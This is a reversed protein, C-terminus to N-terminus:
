WLFNIYQIFKIIPLIMLLIYCLKHSPTKITLMHLCLTLMWSSLYLRNRNWLTFPLDNGDFKDCSQKTFDVNEHLLTACTNMLSTTLDCLTRFFITDCLSAFHDLNLYSCFFNCIYGYICLHLLFLM